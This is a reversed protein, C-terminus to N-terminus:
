RTEGSRVKAVPGNWLSSAFLVVLLVYILSDVPVLRYICLQLINCLKAIETHCIVMQTTRRAEHGPPFALNWPILGFLIRKQAFGQKCLIQPSTVLPTVM